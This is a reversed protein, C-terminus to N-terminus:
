KPHIPYGSPQSPLVKIPGETGSGLVYILGDKEIQFRIDSKGYDSRSYWYETGVRAMSYKWEQGTSKITIQLATPSAVDESLGSKIIYEKPHM